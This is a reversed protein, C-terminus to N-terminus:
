PTHIYKMMKQMLIKATNCYEDMFLKVDNYLAPQNSKLSLIYDANKECIKKAIETQTGMDDITVICGSIELM